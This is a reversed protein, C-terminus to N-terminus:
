RQPDRRREAALQERLEQLLLQAKRKDIRVQDTLPVPRADALMAELKEIASDTETKM